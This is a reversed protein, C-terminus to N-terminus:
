PWEDSAAEMVQGSRPNRIPADHEKRLKLVSIVAAANYALLTDDIDVLSLRQGPMYFSAPITYPLSSEAAMPAPESAKPRKHAANEAAVIDNAVKNAAIHADLSDAVPASSSAPVEM